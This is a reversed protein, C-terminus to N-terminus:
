DSPWRNDSASRLDPMKLVPHEEPAKAFTWVAVTSASPVRTGPQPTQMAVVGPRVDDRWNHAAIYFVGALPKLDRVRLLQEALRVTKGRVDPVPKSTSQREVAAAASNSPDDQAVVGTAAWLMMVCSLCKM